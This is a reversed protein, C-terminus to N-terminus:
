VHGCAPLQHSGAAEHGDDTNRADGMEGVAPRRGRRSRAPANWDNVADTAAQREETLDSPSAILVRFTQVKFSM